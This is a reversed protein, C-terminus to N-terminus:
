LTYLIVAGTMLTAALLRRLFVGRNVRPELREFGIQSIWVGLGISLLGRTSQIINGFVVGIHAFCAFLFVMAAMWSLAFPLSYGWTARNLPAHRVLMVALATIGCFIYTLGAGLMAGKFIGMHRFHDVLLKINLDSLSYFLCALVVLALSSLRLRAGSNSLLLTAIACFGVALWQSLDLPQRMLGASILALIIIKLGLLPSIRSAENRILVTFLFFQGLLYFGATGALPLLYARLPPLDVPHLCLVLLVSLVGMIIHSLILLTGSDDQHRKLYLRTCLYSLSQCFAACFGFFIGAHM